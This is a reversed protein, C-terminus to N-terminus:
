DHQVCGESRCFQPITFIHTKSGSFKNYYAIYSYFILVNIELNLIKIHDKKLSVLLLYFNNLFMCLVELNSSLFNYLSINTLCLQLLSTKSFSLPFLLQLRLIDIQVM